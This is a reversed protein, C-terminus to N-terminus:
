PLKITRKEIDSSPRYFIAINGIVEILEANTKESIEEALKIREERFELFKVKILEHDNLAKEITAINSDEVGKKGIHIMPSLEHALGKLYQRQKSNM